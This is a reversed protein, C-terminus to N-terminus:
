AGHQVITIYDFVTAVHPEISITPYCCREDIRRHGDVRHAEAIQTVASIAPTVIITRVSCM